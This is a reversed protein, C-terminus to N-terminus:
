ESEICNYNKFGDIFSFPKLSEPTRAQIQTKHLAEDDGSQALEKDFINVLVKAMARSYQLRPWM